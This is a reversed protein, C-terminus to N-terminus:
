SASYATQGAPPTIGALPSFEPRVRDARFTLFERFYALRQRFQAASLAPKVGASLATAM